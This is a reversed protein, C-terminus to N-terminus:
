ALGNIRRLGWEASLCAIAILFYIPQHWLPSIWPETMPADRSSLSSVFSSLRDGDVVEGKTRAAISELWERDPQLRAFEDAAPQAAWGAEREGVESGDPASATALVRYPGPERSIYTAAYTGAEHGDPEADLHPGRRGAAHDQARGECQRAASIRRRPGPRAPRGGAVDHRGQSAGLSRRSRPRRRRALPDDPALVTGPRERRSRRPPPGLALPRRDPARAVRGKGFPQAVLAPATRGSADQVESLRVAGPKIGRAQNLVRLPPMDGLRKDEEDETKRLRVWPQLWGERTLVLRYEPNGEAPTPRDLYVPLLDGVPTRDYKGEAFSEPGGLMLLGGGRQSVFNRLLALQDPTFFASELDDIVIAHYRYLEEASKPFGDRLEDDDRTGLRVLVPQDSREAPDPDPQDFGNFFPNTSGSRAARFDFKPQRHAIRILGVLEVQDDDDLARRLFKFESNPRGSSTSCGIRGAARTSSWWGATIPRPRNARHAHRRGIGPRPEEDAAAFARVRYFSIGGDRPPVPLPLQATTTGTASPKRGSSTKARRTRSRRGRHIARPLRRPSTPASWSPRRSSIRRASRSAASGSTGPSGRTPPVVPYIPPLQSWDLDGTDTRNGDTFLSCAPSRCDASGSRSRSSRRDDAVLRRRRLDARRLRRGRPPALRVVYSRVDFDQELRTKWPSEKGLRERLWEGRTAAAAPRRPHAHEPQQGGPDRLCQGRAEAQHRHAAARGPVAAARRVRDGELVRRRAPRRRRGPARVYSWLLAVAALGAAVLRGGVM